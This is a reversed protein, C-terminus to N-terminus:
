IYIITNNITIVRSILRHSKKYIVPGTTDNIYQYSGKRHILKAGESTHGANLTWKIIIEDVGQDELHEREMLLEPWLRTEDSGSTCCHVTRIFSLLTGRSTFGPGIHLKREVRHGLNPHEPRSNKQKTEYNTKNRNKDTM